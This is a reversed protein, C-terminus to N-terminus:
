LGSRQRADVCRLVVSSCLAGGGREGIFVSRVRLRRSQTLM